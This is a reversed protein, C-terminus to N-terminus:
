GIVADANYLAQQLTQATTKLIPVTDNYATRVVRPTRNDDSLLTNQLQTALEAEATRIDLPDPGAELDHLDRTAQNVANQAQLLAVTDAPEKLKRLSLQASNLSVRADQLSQNADRVARLATKKDIEVLPTGTKVEQNPKVLIKTIAGSVNPKVELQNQGSVQGSGNVSVILTGRTATAPIYRLPQAPPHLKKYTIGGGIGLLIVSGILWKKHLLSKLLLSM